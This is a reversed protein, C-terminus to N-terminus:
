FVANLADYWLAAHADAGDTAGVTGFHTGDYRYGAGLTDSDPGAFITTGNVVSACAARIQTATQGGTDTGPFTSKAVFCKTTPSVAIVGAMIRGLTAAHTAETVGNAVDSQGQEWMFGNAVLGASKLRLFASLIRGWLIGGNPDWASSRTGGVAVPVMIVRSFVSGSILKDAVRGIISGGTYDNGPAPDVCSYVGGDYVNMQQALSSAATYGSNTFNSMLSQGACVFVGTSQGSALAPSYQTRGAIVRYGPQGPYEPPVSPDLLTPMAFIM